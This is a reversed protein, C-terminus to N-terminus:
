AQWPPFKKWRYPRVLTSEKKNTEEKAKAITQRLCAVQEQSMQQKQYEQKVNRLAKEARENAENM